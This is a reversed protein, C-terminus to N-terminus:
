HQIRHSLCISKFKHNDYEGGRNFRLVKITTNFQNGVLAKFHVFVNFVDFEHRLLFMWTFHTFDDVFIVYFKHGLEYVIPAPSWIDFHILELLFSSNPVYKPVYHKHM